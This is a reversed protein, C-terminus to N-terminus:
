LGSLCSKVDSLHPSCYCPLSIWEGEKRRFAHPNCVFDYALAWSIESCLLWLALFFFLQLMSLQMRSTLFCLSSTFAELIWIWNYKTFSLFVAFHEEMKLYLSFLPHAPSFCPQNNPSSLNLVFLLTFFSFFVLFSSQTMNQLSWQICLIPFHLVALSFSYIPFSITVRQLTFLIWFIKMDELKLFQLTWGLICCSLALSIAYLQVNNPLVKLLVTMDTIVAFRWLIFFSHFKHIKGGDLKRLEPNM